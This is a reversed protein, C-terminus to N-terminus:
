SRRTLMSTPDGGIADLVTELALMVAGHRPSYDHVPALVAFDAWDGDPPATGEVLMARVQDAITRIQDTSQGIIHQAVISAAAQGLACAHIDQAYDAVRGQDDIVLDITIRSGCLPATHSLTVNPTALRDTRSIAAAHRLVDKSYLADLM